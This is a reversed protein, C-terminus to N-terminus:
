GHGGGTFTSCRSAHPYGPGAASSGIQQGYQKCKGGRDSDAPADIGSFLDSLDADNVPIDTVNQGDYLRQDTCVTIDRGIDRAIGQDDDVVLARM